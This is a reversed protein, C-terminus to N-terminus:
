FEITFPFAMKLTLHWLLILVQPIKKMRLSRALQGPSAVLADSALPQAMFPLRVQIIKNLTNIRNFFSAIKQSSIRSFLRHLEAQTIPEAWPLQVKKCFQPLSTYANDTTFLLFYAVSLIKNKDDYQNFTLRLAEYLPLRKILNQLVWYAGFMRTIQEKPEFESFLKRPKFEIVGDERRFSRLTQLEPHLELYFSKWEIEGFKNGSIIKGVTTTSSRYSRQKQADWANQYTCLYYKKGSKLVLMKELKPNQM